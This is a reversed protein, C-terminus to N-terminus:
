EQHELELEVHPQGGAAIENAEQQKTKKGNKKKNKCCFLRMRNLLLLMYVITVFCTEVLPVIFGWWYTNLNSMIHDELSSHCGQSPVGDNVNSFIFIPLSMSDDKCIGGSCINSEEISQMISIYDENKSM